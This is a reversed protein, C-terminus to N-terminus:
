LNHTSASASNTPSVRTIPKSEECTGSCWRNAALDIRYVKHLDTLRDAGISGATSGIAFKGDCSLNFASAAAAAVLLWSM